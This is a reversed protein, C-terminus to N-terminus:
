TFGGVRVRFWTQGDVLAGVRYAKLKAAALEAVKADAVAVDPTTAVQVSWGTTIAAGANPAFAPAIEPRPGILNVPGPPTEQPTVAQVSVEGSLVEPFILRDGREPTVVEGTPAISASAYEVERLLAELAAEDTPDPLFPAPGAAAVTTAGEAQRRGLQMGVLLAMTAILLSCLGIGALQMRSLTFQNDRSRSSRPRALESM